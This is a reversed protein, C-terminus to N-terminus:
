PNRRRRNRREFEIAEDILTKQRQAEEETEKRHQILKKGTVVQQNELLSKLTPKQKKTLVIM